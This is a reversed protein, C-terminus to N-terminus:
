KICDLCKLPKNDQAVSVLTRFALKAIRVLRDYDIKDATDGTSHYDEHEPGTLFLTALDNKAAVFSYTDTRSFFNRGGDNYLLVMQPDTLRVIETFIETLTPSKARLGDVSDVSNAGIVTVSKKGGAQASDSPYRRGVMDLNIVLAIDKLEFPYPNNQGKLENVFAQSGYLGLEEAGWFAIVIGRRPKRVGYNTYESVARAIGWVAAVGSANDDAGPAFIEPQDPDYGIHDLHASVIVVESTEGPIWGVVNASKFTKMVGGRGSSFKKWEDYRFQFERVLTNSGALAKYGLGELSNGIKHALYIFSSDISGRGHFEPSSLFSVTMEAEKTTITDSAIDVPTQAETRDGALILILTLTLLSSTYRRM